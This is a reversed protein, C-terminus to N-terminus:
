LSELYAERTSGAREIEWHLWPCVDLVARAAAHLPTMRQRAAKMQLHIILPPTNNVAVNGWQLLCPDGIMKNRISWVWKRNKWSSCIDARGTFDATNVFCQTLFLRGENRKENCYIRGFPFPFVILLYSLPKEQTICVGIYKGWQSKTVKSSSPQAAEATSSNKNFHLEMQASKDTVRVEASWCCVGPCFLSAKTEFGINWNCYFCMKYGDCVHLYM